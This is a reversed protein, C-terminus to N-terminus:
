LAHCKKVNRSGNNLKGLRGVIIIDHGPFLLLRHVELSELKTSIAAIKGQWAHDSPVIYVTSGFRRPLFNSL